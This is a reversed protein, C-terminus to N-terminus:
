VDDVIEVEEVEEVEVEVIIEDEPKKKEPPRILCYLFYVVAAALALKVTLMVLGILMGLLPLALGTFLKFAVLGGIGVFAVRTLSKM